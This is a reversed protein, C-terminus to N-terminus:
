LNGRMVLVGDENYEIKKECICKSKQMKFQGQDMANKIERERERKMIYVHSGQSRKWTERRLAEGSKAIKTPSKYTQFTAQTVTTLFFCDFHRVTGGVEPPLARKLVTGSQAASVLM